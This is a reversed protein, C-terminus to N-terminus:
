VASVEQKMQAMAAEIVKDPTFGFKGQLAKLPASAGFTQMGIVAGSPGVYREWGFISAQEVAVRARVRPPLNLRELESFVEQLAASPLSLDKDEAEFKAQPTRIWLCATPLGIREVAGEALLIEEQRNVRYLAFKLSSSGSNLCFIIRSDATEGGDTSTDTSHGTRKRDLDNAVRSGHVSM